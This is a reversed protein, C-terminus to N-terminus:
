TPAGRRAAMRSGTDSLQGPGLSRRAFPVIVGAEVAMHRRHLWCFREVLGADLREDRGEAIGALRERLAAYMLALAHHERGLEYLTAGIEVRGDRAAVARVCPFLDEDEDRHHVNGATDFYRMVAEAGRRAPEDVGHQAVHSLLRELTRLQRETGEHGACLVDLPDDFPEM